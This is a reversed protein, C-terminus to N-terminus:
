TAWYSRSPLSPNGELICEAFRRVRIGSHGKSFGLSNFSAAIGSNRRLPMPLKKLIHTSRRYVPRSFGFSM